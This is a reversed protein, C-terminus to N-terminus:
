RWEMAIRTAFQGQRNPLKIEELPAAEPVQIAGIGIGGAQNLLQGTTNPGSSPPTNTPNNLSIVFSRPGLKGLKIAIASPRM